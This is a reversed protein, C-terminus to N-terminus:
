IFLKQHAKKIKVIDSEPLQGLKYVLRQTDVTRIYWTLLLSERELSSNLITLEISKDRPKIRTTFPCVTVFRNDYHQKDTAVIVAPRFRELESRFGPHFKTLYIEGVKYSM